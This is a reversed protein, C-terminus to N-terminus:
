QGCLTTGHSRLDNAAQQVRAAMAAEAQALYTRPDYTKKNGVEGDVKLVGDYHKFMHEAVWSAERTRVQRSRLLGKPTEIETIVEDGNRQTRTNDILAQGGFIETDGLASVAITVDTKELLARWEEAPMNLVTAPGLHPSCPVRDAEQLHIAALIRERSNM